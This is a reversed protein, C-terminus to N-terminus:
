GPRPPPYAGSTLPFGRRLLIMDLVSRDLWGLFTAAVLDKVQVMYQVSTFVGHTDLGVRVDSHSFVLGANQFLAFEAAETEPLPGHQDVKFSSRCSLQVFRSLGIRPKDTLLIAGGVIAYPHSKPSRTNPRM